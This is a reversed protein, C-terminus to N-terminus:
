DITPETTILTDTNEAIESIGSAEETEAGTSSDDAEPKKKEKRERRVITAAPASNILDIMGQPVVFVDEPSKPRLEDYWAFKQLFYSGKKALYLPTVKATTEPTFLVREIDNDIFWADMISSEVYAYKNYTSDNEVPFMILMVNGEAFLHRITSDNFWATMKLASMQQFCDEDIHEAMFGFEPLKAWDITSDNFHLHIENGFIQKTENWVVPHRYMYMMSDRETSSVSDCIGQLDSRYFRVKHFVNLVRTSDEKDLYAFITDGHIYLTDGRSYEKALAHGTVFASDANDDYFGYDGHMSTSRASDTLIMNGFAEGFNLDRNYFLTDGTLTNGRNTIVLSREYLDALGNETNYTGSTSIIEGDKGIIRTHAILEATHTGTNYNLSDTFMLLTDNGNLNRVEVDLYFNADKTNPFYEGQLSSLTNQADSLVGGAEYFGREQALSYNFVDTELKVDRNILRVKKGADAYLVALEEYGDYNLEDAYVFLTDGQEMRVNSFADFSNTQEYFHASDCYMYMDNKRFVVNGVLVQYQDRDDVGPQKQFRWVDAHELFVKGEQYRSADPIIPTINQPTQPTQPTQVSKSPATWAPLALAFFAAIGSILRLFKLKRPTEGGSKM